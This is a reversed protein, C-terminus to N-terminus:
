KPSEPKEPVPTELRRQRSQAALMQRREVDKIMEPIAEETMGREYDELAKPDVPMLGEVIRFAGTKPKDM